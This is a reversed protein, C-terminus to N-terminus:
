GEDELPLELRATTGRGAGPSRVYLSGGLGKVLQKAVALGIGAHGTRTTYGLQFLRATAEPSVGEGEDRVELVALDGERRALLRVEGGERSAEVANALVIDLALAIAAGDLMWPTGTAEDIVHLRVGRRAGEAPARAIAAGLLEAPMVPHRRAEPPGLHELFRHLVDDVREIDQRLVGLSRVIAEGEGAAAAGLKRVRSEILELHIAMSNLPNRVEHALAATLHGFAAATPLPGSEGVSSM